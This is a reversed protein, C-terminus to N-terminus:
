RPEGAAFRRDSRQWVTWGLKVSKLCVAAARFGSRGTWDAGFNAAGIFVNLTASFVANGDSKKLGDILSAGSTFIVVGNYFMGATALGELNPQVISAFELQDGVFELVEELKPKARHDTLFPAPKDISTQTTLGTEGRTPAVGDGATRLGDDILIIDDYVTFRAGGYNLAEPLKGPHSIRAEKTAQLRDLFRDAGSDNPVIPGPTLPRGSRASSIFESATRCLSVLEPVPVGFAALPSLIIKARDFSSLPNPTQPSLSHPGLRAGVLVIEGNPVAGSFQKPQRALDDLTAGVRSRSSEIKM